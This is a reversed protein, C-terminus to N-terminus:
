QPVVPEATQQDGSGAEVPWYEIPVDVLPWVDLPDSPSPWSRRATRRARAVSVRFLWSGSRKTSCIHQKSPM